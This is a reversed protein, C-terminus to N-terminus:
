LVEGSFQRAASSLLRAQRRDRRNLLVVLGILAAVPSVSGLLNLVLGVIERIEWNM